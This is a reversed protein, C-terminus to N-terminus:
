LKRAKRFKRTKKDNEDMDAEWQEQKRKTYELRPKDLEEDVKRAERSQQAYRLRSIYARAQFWAECPVGKPPNHHWSYTMRRYNDMHHCRWLKHMDYSDVYPDNQRNARYLYWVPMVYGRPFSWAGYNHPGNILTDLDFRINRINNIFAHWTYHMDSHYKRNMPNWEVIKTNVEHAVQGIETREFIQKWKGSKLKRWQYKPSIVLQGGLDLNDPLKTVSKVRRQLDILVPSKNFPEFELINTKIKLNPPGYVPLRNCPGILRDVSMFHDPDGPDVFAEMHTRVLDHMPLGHETRYDLGEGDYHIIISVYPPELQYTLGEFSAPILM